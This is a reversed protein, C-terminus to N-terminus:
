SVARSIRVASMTANLQYSGFVDAPKDTGFAYVRLTTLRRIIVRRKGTFHTVPGLKAKVPTGEPCFPPKAMAPSKVNWAPTSGYVTLFPSMRPRDGNDPSCMPAAAGNVTIRYVGPTLTMTIVENCVSVSSPCNHPIDRETGSIVIPLYGSAQATTALPSAFAQSGPMIVSMGVALAMITSKSFIRM